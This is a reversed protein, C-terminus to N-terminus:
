RVKPRSTINPAKLVQVYYLPGIRFHERKDVHRTTTLYRRWRWRGAMPCARREMWYKFSDCGTSLQCRYEIYGGWWVTWKRCNMWVAPRCWPGHLRAVSSPRKGHDPRKLFRNVFGQPDGEGPTIQIHVLLFSWAGVLSHASKNLIHKLLATKPFISYFKKLWDRTKNQRWRKQESSSKM